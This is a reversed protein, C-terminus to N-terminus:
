FNTSFRMTIDRGPDDVFYRYRSLYDRYTTNLLNSIGVGIQAQAGFLRLDSSLNLDLLQYGPPPDSFDVGSPFRTQEFVKTMGLEVHTQSLRAMKPLDYALSIKFRDSPMNILDLNQKIDRARIVSGSLTVSWKDLPRIEAFGDLGRIRADTQQYEFVPYTGRITVRYDGGPFVHIFNDMENWYASLEAYVLENDVRATLDATLSRERGLDANGIEFQATGHHVGFNYLENVSPPRWASALTSSISFQDGLVKTLGLIGTLSSWSQHEQVFSSGGGQDLWTGLRRFDFRTGGELSWSGILRTERLFAGASHSRYNPILQGSEGNRNAQNTYSVGFTRIKDARLDVYKLDVSSTGLGLSFGPSSTDDTRAHSDFEKRRNSQYGYVSELHATETLDWHAKVSVLDHAIVQKPNEIDYSFSGVSVPRGRAIARQLDSANGFHAGTFLGLTTGFHSLNLDIGLRDLHYGVGVSGSLESFGSNSIQDLPSHTSGALRGSIQGRWALGPVKESASGLNISGAAQRNNNFLNGSVSGQLKSSQPLEPPEIKIVGGIAGIGYEVGAAGRIIEISGPSFPDIEPAHEGGWQQGEQAIGANVLTLRQSHMGRIVPKQISPGTSIVSVGPLHDVMNALSQGRLLVLERGEIQTVSRTSYDLGIKDREVLIEHAHLTTEKMVPDLRTVGNKVEISFKETIFGIFRFEINLIGLPLNDIEYRGNADSTTGRELDPIYIQVGALSSSSEDVVHGSITQSLL